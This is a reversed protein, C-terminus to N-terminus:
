NSITAAFTEQGSQHTAVCAYRAILSFRGAYAYCSPHALDIPICSAGVLNITDSPQHTQTLCPTELFPLWSHLKSFNLLIARFFSFAALHM